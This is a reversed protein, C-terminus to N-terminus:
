RTTRRRRRTIEAYFFNRAKKHFDKDFLITRLKATSLSRHYDTLDYVLHERMRNAEDKTM